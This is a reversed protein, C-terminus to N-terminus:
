CSWIYMQMIQEGGRFFPSNLSGPVNLFRGRILLFIPTIVDDAAPRQKSLLELTKEGAHPQLDSRELIKQQLFFHRAAKKPSAQNDNKQKKRM